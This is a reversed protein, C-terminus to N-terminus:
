SDATDKQTPISPQTSNAVVAEKEKKKDRKRHRDILAVEAKLAMYTKKLESLSEQLIAIRKDPDTYADLPVYFNFKSTRSHSSINVTSTSSILSCRHSSAINNSICDKQEGKAHKSNRKSGGSKYVESVFSKSARKRKTFSEDTESLQRKLSNASKVQTDNKRSVAQNALFLIASETHSLSDESETVDTKNAEGPFSDSDADKPLNRSDPSISDQDYIPSSSLYSPTSEPTTPPTNDLVTSVESTHVIDRINEPGKSSTNTSFDLSSESIPNFSVDSQELESSLSSSLHLHPEIDVRVPSIPVQEQCLLFSTDDNLKNSDLLFDLSDSKKELFETNKGESQDSELLLSQTKKKYKKKDKKGKKPKTSKDSDSSNGDDHCKDDPNFNVDKKKKKRKTKRESIENKDKNKRCKKLKKCNEERKNICSLVLGDQEDEKKKKEQKSFDLGELTILEQNNKGFKKFKKRKDKKIRKKMEEDKFVDNEPDSKSSVSADLNEILGVSDDNETKIFMSKKKKDKKMILSDQELDALDISKIQNSHSSINEFNGVVSKLIINDINEVHLNSELLKIDVNDENIINEKSNDQISISPIKCSLEETESIARELQPRTEYREEGADPSFDPKKELPPPDDDNSILISDSLKEMKWTIEPPHLNTSDIEAMKGLEIEQNEEFKNRTILIEQCLSDNNDNFSINPMPLGDTEKASCFLEPIRESVDFKEIEWKKEMKMTQCSLLSEESPNFNSCSPDTLNRHELTNTLEMTKECSIIADGILLGPKIDKSNDVIKEEVTASKDDSSINKIDKWSLATEFEDSNKVSSMEETDSIFELKITENSTNTESETTPLIQSSESDERTTSMKIEDSDPLKRRLKRTTQLGSNVSSDSSSQRRSKSIVSNNKSLRSAASLSPSSTKRLSLKFLKSRKVLAKSKSGPWLIGKKKRENGTKNEIVEVIKNKKIWEDYRVNWGTYHVFYKREGNEREIKLVKAEYKKHQKGNGYKVRVRDGIRVITDNRKSKVDSDDKAIKGGSDKDEVKGNKKKLQEKEDEVKVKVLVGKDKGIDKTTIKTKEKNREEKYRGSNPKEKKKEKNINLKSKEQENKISGRTEIKERKSEITNSSKLEEKQKINESEDMKSIRSRRETNDESKQQNKIKADRSLRSRVLPLNQERKRTMIINRDSRCRTHGSRTNSVMTCGLKRNFDEFSHLYRKYAKKIQISCAPNTMILGMKTYITRWKNQNTVRNYGGMQQVINFLKYLNLDRGSITPARNIPTGREDMFKYLQAVFRDKEESPEDDSTEIDSDQNNDDDDDHGMMLDWDWHPPIEDKNLYLNAKEVATKLLNNEVKAGIEKTFMKIERKKVQYYKGDKFSRVLYYDKSNIKIDQSTPSVILGPFWNDKKRKDGMDVCVVKAIDSEYDKRLDKKRKSHLEEGSSDGDMSSCSAVSRRKRKNKSGLVPIGFHEPNTLPLQDLTESEAFHRGSKLCLSTRRLTTEDGDDFVVTYQSYDFIKTIVAAVYQNKEPHKAEVHVNVRLTGRIQDDPLVMTGLNNAFMVKCKVSRNVKKVKAECFAGKYRASVDTGVTLYPPENVAMISISTNTIISSSRLSLDSCLIRM